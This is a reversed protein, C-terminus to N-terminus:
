LDSCVFASLPREFLVTIEQTVVGSKFYYVQPWTCLLRHLNLVLVTLICSPLLICICDKILYIFSHSQEKFGIITSVPEHACFKM